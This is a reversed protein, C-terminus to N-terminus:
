AALYDHYQVACVHSHKKKLQWDIVRFGTRQQHKNIAIWKSYYNTFRCDNKIGLKHLRMKIMRQLYDNVTRRLEGYSLSLYADRAVVNLDEKIMKKMDKRIQYECFDNVHIDIVAENIAHQRVEEVIKDIHQRYEEAKIIYSMLAKKATRKKKTEDTNKLVQYLDLNRQPNFPLNYVTEIDAGSLFNCKRSLVPNLLHQKLTQVVAADTLFRMLYIDHDLIGVYHTLNRIPTVSLQILGSASALHLARIIDNESEYKKQYHKHKLLMAMFEKRNFVYANDLDMHNSIYSKSRTKFYYLLASMIDKNSKDINYEALSVSVNSATKFNRDAIAKSMTMQQLMKDYCRQAKLKNFRTQDDIVKFGKIMFAIECAVQKSCSLYSEIIGCFDKHKKNNLKLCVRDVEKGKIIKKDTIFMMDAPNSIDHIKIPLQEKTLKVYMDQNIIKNWPTTACERFAEHIDVEKKESRLYPLQEDILQNLEDFCGTDYCEKLVTFFASGCENQRWSEKDIRRKDKLHQKLLVCEQYEKQMDKKAFSQRLKDIWSKVSYRRSPNYEMIISGCLFPQALYKLGMDSERVKMWWTYPLRHVFTSSTSSPDVTVRYSQRIGSKAIVDEIENLFEKGLTQHSEVSMEDIHYFRDYMYTGQIGDRTNFILTPKIASKKLIQRVKLLVPKLEELSLQRGDLHYIDIDFSNCLHWLIYGEKRVAKITNAIFNPREKREMCQQMDMADEWKSPQYGLITNKQTHYLHDGTYVNVHQMNWKDNTLTEVKMIHRLIDGKIRKAKMGGTSLYIERNSFDTGHLYGTKTLNFTRGSPTDGKYRVYPILQYMPFYDNSEKWYFQSILQQLRKNNTSAFDKATQQIMDRRELVLCEFFHRAKIKVEESLVPFMDNFQQKWNNADEETLSYIFRNDDFEEQVVKVDNVTTVIENNYKGVQRTMYIAMVNFGGKKLYENKLYCGRIYAAQNQKYCFLRM